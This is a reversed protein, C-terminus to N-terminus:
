LATPLVLVPNTSLTLASAKAERGELQQWVGLKQADTMQGWRAIESLSRYCGKCWGSAQDM